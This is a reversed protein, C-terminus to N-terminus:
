PAVIEIVRASSPGCNLLTEDCGTSEGGLEYQGPQVPEGEDDLQDWTESFTVEDGPEFTVEELVEAFTMGKSWRWVEIGREGKVSFDYRQADPFSRTIPRSACNVVRLTMKIPEGAEYSTQEIELDAIVAQGVEDDIRPCVEPPPM